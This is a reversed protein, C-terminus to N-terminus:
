TYLAVERNPGQIGWSKLIFQGMMLRSRIRTRGYLASPLVRKIWSKPDDAGGEVYASLCYYNMDFSDSSDAAPLYKITVGGPRYLM